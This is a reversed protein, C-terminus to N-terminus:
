YSLSVWAIPLTAYRLENLKESRLTNIGDKCPMANWLSPSNECMWANMLPWPAAALILLLLQIIIRTTTNTKTTWHFGAKACSRLLVPWWSHIRTYKAISHIPNISRLSNHSITRPLSNPHPHRQELSPDALPHHDIRRRATIKKNQLIILIIMNWQHFIFPRSQFLRSERLKEEMRKGTIELSPVIRLRHRQVRPQSPVPRKMMRYMMRTNRMIGNTPLLLMLSSVWIPSKWPRWLLFWQVTTSTTTTTTASPIACAECLLFIPDETNKSVLTTLPFVFRDFPDILDFWILDFWM